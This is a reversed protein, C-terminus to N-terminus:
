AAPPAGEAAARAAAQRAELAERRPAGFLERFHELTYGAKPGFDAYSALGAGELLGEVSRTYADIMGYDPTKPLADHYRAERIIAALLACDTWSLEVTVANEEVKLLDM